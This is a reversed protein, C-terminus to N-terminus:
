WVGQVRAGAGDSSSTVDISVWRMSASAKTSSDGETLLLIGGGAVGAGGVIFSVTSVLGLGRASSVADMGDRNCNPGDCNKEITDKKMFVLGGTIAGVVIGAVGVGGLAYAGIRRSSMGAPPPPENSTALPPPPRPPEVKPPPAKPVDTKQIKVDLEIVKKDGKEITLRQESAPQGPVHVTIVHEGPDVPLAVGLALTALEVGDRMVRTGTPANKPLSLTLLPVEKLLADKQTTAIKHRDAHNKQQQPLLRAYANLYDEYRTIATAIKGAKAECEALTFYTGPRPDLRLSEAIAPCATDFRGANMDTVGRKFLADAVVVDQALSPASFAIFAVTFTITSGIYRM